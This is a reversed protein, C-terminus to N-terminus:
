HGGVFNSIVENLQLLTPSIDQSECEIQYIAKTFKITNAKRMIKGCSNCHDVNGM